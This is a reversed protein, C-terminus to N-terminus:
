SKVELYTCERFSSFGLRFFVAISTESRLVRVLPTWSPFSSQFRAQFDKWHESILSFIKPVPEGPRVKSLTGDNITATPDLHTCRYELRGM